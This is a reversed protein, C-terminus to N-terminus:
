MGGERGDTGGGTVGKKGGERRSNGPKVRSIQLTIARKLNHGRFGGRSYRNERWNTFNGPSSIKVGLVGLGLTPHTNFQKNIKKVSWSM